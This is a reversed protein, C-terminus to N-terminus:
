DSGAVYGLNWRDIALYVPGALLVGGGLLSGFVAVYFQGVSDVTPFTGTVLSFLLLLVMLVLGTLVALTADVVAARNVAM